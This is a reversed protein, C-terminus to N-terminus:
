KDHFYDNIIKYVLSDLLEKLKLDKDSLEKKDILKEDSETQPTIILMDKKLLNNQYENDDLQKKLYEDSRSPDDSPTKISVRIKKKEPM